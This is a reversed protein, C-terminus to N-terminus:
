AKKGFLGKKKKIEEPPKIYFRNKETNKSLKKLYKLKKEVDDGKLKEDITEFPILEEENFSFVHPEGEFVEHAATEDDDWKHVVEGSWYIGSAIQRAPNGGWSTNSPVSKGALLSMAGLISGSGIKSGKLVMADQGVWVRDGIFVSKSPNIRRNTEASYVLHPDATRLWIGFSFLNEAGIIINKQESLVAHLMGNTYNNEGMYFVSNKYVTVDLDYYHRNKSLYIICNDGSFKLLSNHLKVEKGCYLVNGKGSFRIESNMFNINEGHIIKNDQLNEIDEFCKVIQM